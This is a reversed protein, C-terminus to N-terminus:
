YATPVMCIRHCVKKEESRKMRKVHASTSLITHKRQSHRNKKLPSGKGPVVVEGTEANVALGLSVRRRLEKPKPTATAAQAQPNFTAKHKAHAAATVKDLKSRAAKTNVFLNLHYVWVLQFLYVCRGLEKRKMRYLRTGQRKTRRGLRKMQARLIRGLCM